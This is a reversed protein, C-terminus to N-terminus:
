PAGDRVEAPVKSWDVELRVRDAPSPDDDPMDTGDSNIYTVEYAEDPLEALIWNLAQGINLRKSNMQTLGPENRKRKWYTTVRFSVKASM